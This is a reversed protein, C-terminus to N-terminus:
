ATIKDNKIHNNIKKSWRKAIKVSPNELYKYTLWAVPISLIPTLAIAIRIDILQGVFIALLMLVLIHVLYLSYSIKGLFLLPKVMLVQQILRSSLAVSFLTVIGIGAILEGIVPHKIPSFYYIWKSGILSLSILLIIFKIYPTKTSLYRTIGFRYKALTAGLVFFVAYFVTSKFDLTILRLVGTANVSLLHLSVWVSTLISANICLSKALSNKSIILAIFPFILSIRMEHYLTWVVGNVNATDYNIMFIYALIAHWTPLHNWRNDFVPSMGEISRVYLFTCLLTSVAMVVAYPIYIRAFRKAIYVSYNTSRGRYFSLSLVFGSLVFFLLVAENGSWFIKLPTESIFKILGNEYQSNYNAEYFLNFSIMCHFIIVSMAALGRLSDLYEIRDRSM